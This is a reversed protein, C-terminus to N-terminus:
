SRATSRAVYEGVMTFLVFLPLGGIHFWLPSQIMWANVGAGATLLVGAILAPVPSSATAAKTAVFGAAFSGAIWGFAVLVLAQAPLTDAFARVQVIDNTDMAAPFPYILYNIYECAMMVAGATVFGAVVAIINRLM